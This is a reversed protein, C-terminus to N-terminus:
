YTITCAACPRLAVLQAAWNNSATATATKDGTAGPSAQVYDGAAETAPGSSDTNSVDYRETLGVPATFTANADIGFFAVVREDTGTTTVGPATVSSGSGTGGGSPS